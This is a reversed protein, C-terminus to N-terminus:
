VFLVVVFIFVVVFILVDRVSLLDCFSVCCIGFLFFKLFM